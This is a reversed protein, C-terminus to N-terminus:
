IKLKKKKESRIHEIEAFVAAANANIYDALEEWTMNKTMEYEYDRLKRIDEVTFNSSIKLEM